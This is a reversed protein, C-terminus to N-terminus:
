GAGNLRIRVVGSTAQVTGGPPVIITTDYEEVILPGPLPVETLGERRMVPATVWGCAPGFYVKRNAAVSQAATSRVASVSPLHDQRDLSRARLRLGVIQVRETRSCYGYSREHELHFQEAADSLIQPSLV